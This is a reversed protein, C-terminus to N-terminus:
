KEPPKAAKKGVHRTIRFLYGLIFGMAVSLLVVARVSMPKLGGFASFEISTGKRTSTLVFTVIAVAVILWITLRVKALQM